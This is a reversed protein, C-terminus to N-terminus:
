GNVARVASPVTRAAQRDFASVPRLLTPLQLASLVRATRAYADRALYAGGIGSVVFSMFYLWLGSRTDAAIDAGSALWHPAFNPAFHMLLGLGFFGLANTFNM